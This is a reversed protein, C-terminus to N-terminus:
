SLYLINSTYSTTIVDSKSMMLNIMLQLIIPIYTAVYSAVTCVYRYWIAISLVYVYSHSQVQWFPRIRAIVCINLFLILHQTDRSHM